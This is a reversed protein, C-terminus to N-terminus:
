TSVFVEKGLILFSPRSLIVKSMLGGSGVSGPFHLQEHKLLEGSELGIKDASPFTLM